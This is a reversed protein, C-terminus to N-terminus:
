WTFADEAPPAEKTKTEVPWDDDGNSSAAVAAKTDFEADFASGFDDGGGGMGGSSPTPNSAAAPFAADDFGFADSPAPPPIAPTPAVPTSQGPVCVEDGILIKTSTKADNLKLVRNLTTKSKQAISWWSDGRKAVYTKACPAADVQQPSVVSCVLAAACLLVLRNRVVM